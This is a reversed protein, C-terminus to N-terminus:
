VWGQDELEEETGINGNVVYTTMNVEGNHRDYSGSGLVIKGKGARATSKRFILVGAVALAFVIIAVGVSSGVAKDTHYGGVTTSGESAM